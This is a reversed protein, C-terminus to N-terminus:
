YFIQESLDDEKFLEFEIEVQMNKEIECGIEELDCVELLFLLQDFGSFNFYDFFQKIIVYM